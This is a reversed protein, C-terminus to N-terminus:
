IRWIEELKNFKFYIKGDEMYRNLVGKRVLVNTLEKEKESLKSKAIHGSEVVKNVFDSEENSIMINIGGVLEFVKM